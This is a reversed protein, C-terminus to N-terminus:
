IRLWYDFDKGTKYRYYMPLIERIIAYENDIIYNKKHLDMCMKSIPISTTLNYKEAVKRIIKELQYRGM